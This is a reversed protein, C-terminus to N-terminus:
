PIVLNLKTLLMGLNPRVYELARDSHLDNERVANSILANVYHDQYKIGHESLRLYGYITSRTLAEAATGSAAVM